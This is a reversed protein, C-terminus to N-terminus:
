PLATTCTRVLLGSQVLSCKDQASSVSSNSYKWLMGLYSPPGPGVRCVRPVGAAHTHCLPPCLSTGAEM